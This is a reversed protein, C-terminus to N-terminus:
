KQVDEINLQRFMRQMTTLSDATAALQKLVTSATFSLVCCVSRTGNSALITVNSFIQSFEPMAYNCIELSLPQNFLHKRRYVLCLYASLSFVRSLCLSLCVSSCLCVWTLTTNYCSLFLSFFLFPSSAMLGFACVFPDAKSTVHRLQSATFTGVAVGIIGAACTIAGFTLSVSDNCVCASGCVCDCGHM